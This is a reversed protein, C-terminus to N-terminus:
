KKHSRMGFPAFKMKLDVLISPNDLVRHQTAQRRMQKARIRRHRQCSNLLRPEPSREELTRPMISAGRLATGKLTLATSQM